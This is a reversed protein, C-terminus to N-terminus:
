FLGFDNTTAQFCHLINPPQVADCLDSLNRMAFTGDACTMFGQDVLIKEDLFGKSRAFRKLSEPIRAYGDVVVM